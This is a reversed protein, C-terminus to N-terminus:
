EKIEKVRVTMGNYASKIVTLMLKDNPLLGKVVAMDDQSELVEVKKLKLKNNEVVFVNNQSNILKRSISIANKIPEQQVSATLFMGEMLDKGHTRIFVKVSQTKEDIGAGIRVVKGKWIKQFDSSQLQASSGVKIHQIVDLPYTVELDFAQTNIFTGLKSGPHVAEGGVANAYLVVGDYPARINYKSLREEMSKLNYYFSYLGKGILYFKEKDSDAKPIGPLDKNVDISNVYDYWKQYAKPYDYKLDALVSTIRTIFDSKKAILGMAYETSNVTLILEGKQYTKGEKFVLAEKGLQGNVESVIDFREVAKLKGTALAMFCVDGFNPKAVEILPAKRGSKKNEKKQGVNMLKVVGIAVLIISIAIGISILTKKM